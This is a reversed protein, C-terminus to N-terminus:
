EATWELTFKFTRLVADGMIKLCRSAFPYEDTAVSITRGNINVSGQLGSWRLGEVVYGKEAADVEFLAVQALTECPFTLRAELCGPVVPLGHAAVASPVYIQVIWPKPRPHNQGDLFLLFDTLETLTLADAM